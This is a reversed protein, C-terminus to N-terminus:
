VESVELMADDNDSSKENTPAGAENEAPVLGDGSKLMAGTTITGASSTRAALLQQLRASKFQQTGSVVVDSHLVSLKSLVPTDTLPSGDESAASSAPTKGNM